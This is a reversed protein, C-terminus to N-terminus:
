VFEFDFEFLIKFFKDVVKFFGFNDKVVNFGFLGSEFNFCM